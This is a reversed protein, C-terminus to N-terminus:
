WNRTLRLRDHERRRSDTFVIPVIIVFITKRNSQRLTETHKDDYSTITNLFSGILFLYFLSFALFRLSSKLGQHLSCSRNSNKISISIPNDAKIILHIKIVFIQLCQSSRIKGNHEEDKKMIDVRRYRKEHM